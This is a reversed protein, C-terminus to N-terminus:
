SIINKRGQIILDIMQCSSDEHEWGAVSFQEWLHSAPGHGTIKNVCHMLKIKEILSDKCVSIMSFDRLRFVPRRM